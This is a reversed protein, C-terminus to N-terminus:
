LGFLKFTLVGEHEFSVHGVTAFTIIGIDAPLMGPLGLASLYSNVQQVISDHPVVDLHGAADVRATQICSQIAAMSSDTALLPLTVTKIHNLLRDAVAEMQERRTVMGLLIILDWYVIQLM